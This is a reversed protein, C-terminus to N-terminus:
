HAPQIRYPPLALLTQDMAAKGVSYAVPRVPMVVKHLCMAMRQAQGNVAVTRSNTTNDRRRAAIRRMRLDNPAERIGLQNIERSIIVTTGTTGIAIRATTRERTIEITKFQVKFNTCARQRNPPFLCLGPAQRQRRLRRRQQPQHQLRELPHRPQPDRHRRISSIIVSTTLLQHLIRAATLRGHRSLRGTGMRAMDQIHGMALHCPPIPLRPEEQRRRVLIHSVPMLHVMRLQHRIRLNTIHNSATDQPLRHRFALETRRTNTNHLINLLHLGQTRDTHNRITQQRTNTARRM